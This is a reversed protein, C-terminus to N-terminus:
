KFILRTITGHQEVRAKGPIDKKVRKDFTKLQWPTINDIDMYILEWFGRLKSPFGIIVESRYEQSADYFQIPRLANPAIYFFIAEIKNIELENLM